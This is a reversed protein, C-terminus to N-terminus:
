RRSGRTAFSAHYDAFWAREEEVCRTRTARLRLRVHRRSGPRAHGPVRACTRRSSTPRASSRRRLVGPRGPRQAFTAGQVREIPDKLKWEEVEGAIGTAPRTTPPRTRAWGTPSRRSSADAGRRARAPRAGGQDGRLVALVDNGDVRVGPFGFGRPASTSRSAADAAREAGLDGVPQEPLLLRRARQLRQRLRVGRQRRGARHRRRRLLRHRRRRPRTAPASRATASSAWRTAPRTCPRRASSSRTSTSTTRTRTGAASTRRRPVPRAAHAPRRGRCWAVGHERYTPFVYDQPACPGAPASRRPRRASCAPGSAWSARASCPPPRSTSAASSCSTATSTACRRRPDPDFAYDPHEVREGEPTLLQVLEAPATSRRRQRDRARRRRAPLRSRRWRCPEPRRRRVPRAGPSRGAAAARPTGTPDPWSVTEWRVALVPARRGCCAVGVGRGTTAARSGGAVRPFSPSGSRRPRPRRSRRRRRPGARRSARATRRGRPRRRPRATPGWGCSAPWSRTEAVAGGCVPLVRPPCSSRGSAPPIRNRM